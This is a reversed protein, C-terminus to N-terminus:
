AADVYDVLAIGRRKEGLPRMTIDEPVVFEVKLYGHWRGGSDVLPMAVPGRPNIRNQKDIDYITGDPSQLAEMIDFDALRIGDLGVVIDDDVNPNYYRHNVRTRRKLDAVDGIEMGVFAKGSLGLTNCVGWGQRTECWEEGSDDDLACRGDYLEGEYTFPVCEVGDVTKWGRNDVETWIPKVALPQGIQMPANKHIVSANYDLSPDTPDSSVRKTTLHTIPSSLVVPLLYFVRKM